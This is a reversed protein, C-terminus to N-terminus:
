CFRIKKNRLSHLKLLWSSKKLLKLDVARKCLTPFCDACEKFRLEDKGHQFSCRVRSLLASNSIEGSCKLCLKPRMTCIPFSRASKNANFAQLFVSLVSLSTEISDINPKREFTKTLVLAVEWYHLNFSIFWLEKCPFKCALREIGGWKRM